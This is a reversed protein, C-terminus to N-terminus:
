SQPTIILQKMQPKNEKTLSAWNKLCNHWSNSQLGDQHPTVHYLLKGNRPNTLAWLTQKPDLFLDLFRSSCALLTSLWQTPIGTSFQCGTSSRADEILDATFWCSGCVLITNKNENSIWMCGTWVSIFNKRQIMIIEDRLPYALCTKLVLVYM